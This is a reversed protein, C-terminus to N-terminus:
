SIATLDLLWSQFGDKLNQINTYGRKETDLNLYNCYKMVYDNETQKTVLYADLNWEFLTFKSFILGVWDWVDRFSGTLHNFRIKICRWM